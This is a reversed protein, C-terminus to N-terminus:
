HFSYNAGLLYQTGYEQYDLMRAKNESYAIYPENTLNNVQFLLQLGELTGESFLYSVQLDTIQDADVYRLARDNAFNTVEGIYESRYRTAIRAAFGHLDYYLTANWVNESLGPLPINSSPSGTVVGEIEIDSDTYAYSFGFGFGELADHFVEFPLQAAFELGFLYGGQGNVPRTFNGTTKPVVGPAFYGPPISALLDSYDYNPDTQAYIYSTLDKYFTAASVYGKYDYFYKEYSLDAAWARWPDLEPNGGSGGPIGTAADYGVENTAKLQDMRARAMQQSVAFRVAQQDQLEFILNVQPLVDTYSTGGSVRFVDQAPTYANDVQYSGSSQDTYIVQLGINGKLTVADSIVHDLDGRIYGTWVEEEVDWYKPALYPLTEPNGYVIPNYYDRLVTKVQWALAKGADAYSLNTPSLLANDAIQYYKGDITGLGAEPGKKDKKRDSYNVGFSTSNFWWLEGDRVADVRLSTLDDTVEPKKSYGAGYITPGVQVKTPDAYDLGFTLSSMDSSRLKFVGNDYVNNPTTATAGVPKYQANTEWQRQKREAKSYSLDALLRWQDNLQFENLWGTSFIQDDTLFLFNRALPVVTNLNGATVTNNRITPNSYGFITNPPFPGDCCPAPYGGLNVELSRANNTQQMDTYYLDLITGYNDTPRYEITALYGDRLTDGMDARVKMGNTTYADAPVGPDVNAPNTGNPNWPEYTGFGKTAIPSDLRAFGLAIGLKGDMFQDVWSFSARYGTDSSNAGLDDGQSNMEGRLNLVLAQKGYDLPRITRLDITGALGQGVINSDPTKYVVVANILEAPYQDYEIARNDGTSVQERGNMLGTTFGPDTGRLSIASSRGEARQTTIGPMRAIADAISTDPLKGIDEASIVEAISQLEAKVQIADQIGARIGTVIVEELETSAEAKASVPDPAPTQQAYGVAPLGLAIAVALSLATHRTPTLHTILSDDARKSGRKAHM